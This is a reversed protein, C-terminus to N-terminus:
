ATKRRAEALSALTEQSAPANLAGTLSDILNAVFFETEGPKDAGRGGVPLRAARRRAKDALAHVMQASALTMREDVIEAPLTDLIRRALRRTRVMGHDFKDRVLGGVDVGPDSIAQALFRVYAGGDAAPDLQEALPLVMAEVVARISDERGEAEIADLLAVRRRNIGAMRREFIAELLAERTGFHYHLAAVNRQGAARNIERLSVNDIGREAFLREAALVLKDRTETDSM